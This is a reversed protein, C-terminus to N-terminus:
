SLGALPKSLVSETAKLAAYLLSRGEVHPTSGAQEAIAKSLTETAKLVPQRAVVCRIKVLQEAEKSDPEGGSPM